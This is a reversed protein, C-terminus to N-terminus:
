ISEAEPTWQSTLGALHNVPGHGAGIEPATRIAEGIFRKAKRIADLVPLGQALGAAIAASFACGSGHTHQTDFRPGALEFLERGSAVVDIAETAGPISGAKVVVWKPGLDILRRAAERAQEITTVEIGVLEATEHRNPTLVDALPVLHKILTQRADAALLPDGGKAVMVPDVVLNPVKWQRVKAAVTEVIPISSLMGTKAADTGIDALVSDFQQAILDAPLYFAAQVGVTNQATVATLVVSGYVGFAAFTKLDAQIGAGGGSDSGAITLARHTM